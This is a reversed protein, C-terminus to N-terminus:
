RVGELEERGGRSAIEFRGVFPQKTAVGRAIVGNENVMSLQSIVMKIVTATKITGCDYISLRCDVITL